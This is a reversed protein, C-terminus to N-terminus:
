VFENEHAYEKGPITNLDKAFSSYIFSRGRLEM